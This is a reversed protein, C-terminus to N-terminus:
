RDCRGAEALAASADGTGYASDGLVQLGPQEHELLRVGVV